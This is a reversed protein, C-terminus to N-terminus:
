DWQNEDQAERWRELAQRITEWGYGRRELFGIIRRKEREDSLDPAKKEVLAYASGAENLEGTALTEELAAQIIGATVGKERLEQQLRLRGKPHFRASDRIYARAYKADDVYGYRCLFALVEARIEPEFGLAELKQDVEAGSKLRVGLYRLAAAQAEWYAPTEEKNM